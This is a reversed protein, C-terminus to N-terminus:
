GAKKQVNGVAKFVEATAKLMEPTLGSAAAESTLSSNGAGLNSIGGINWHEFVERIEESNADGGFAKLYFKGFNIAHIRDANRMAEERNGDALSFGAKAAVIMVGISVLSKLSFSITSAVSVGWNEPIELLSFVGASAAAILSLMGFISWLHHLSRSRKERAALDRLAEEVFPSADQELQERRAERQEQQADERASRGAVKAQHSAIAQDIRFVIEELTQGASEIAFLDQVVPPIPVDDLVVPIIFTKGSERSFARAAGIESVVFQSELAHKSILVVMGDASRLGELLMERWHDGPALADVDLVLDHGLERLQRALQYAVDRDRSSYSLFLKAM